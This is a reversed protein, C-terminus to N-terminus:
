SKVLLLMEDNGVVDILDVGPADGEGSRHEVVGGLDGEKDGSFLFGGDDLLDDFARAIGFSKRGLEDSRTVSCQGPYQVGVRGGVQGARRRRRRSSRRM